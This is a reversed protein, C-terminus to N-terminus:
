EWEKLNKADAILKALEGMDLANLAMTAGHLHAHLRAVEEQHVALERVWANIQMAFSKRDEDTITIDM